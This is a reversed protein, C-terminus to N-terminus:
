EFPFFFFDCSVFIMLISDGCIYIKFVFIVAKCPVLGIMQVLFVLQLVLHEALGVQTMAVVAGEVVVLVQVVALAVLLDLVEVVIAYAM